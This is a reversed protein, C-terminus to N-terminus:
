AVDFPRLHRGRMARRWTQVEPHTREYAAARECGMQLVRDALARRGLVVLAHLTEAESPTTRLSIGTLEHLAAAEAGERSRVADLDALDEPDLPVQKRVKTTAM